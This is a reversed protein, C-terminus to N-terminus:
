FVSYWTWRLLHCVSWLLLAVNMTMPLSIACELVPM